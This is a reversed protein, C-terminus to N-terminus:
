QRQGGLGTRAPASSPLGRCDFLTPLARPNTDHLHPLHPSFRLTLMFPAIGSSATLDSIEGYAITPSMKTSPRRITLRALYHPSTLIGYGELEYLVFFGEGETREGM